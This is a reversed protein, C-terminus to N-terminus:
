LHNMMNLQKGIPLNNGEEGREKMKEDVNEKGGKPECSLILWHHAEFLDLLLILHPLLPYYNYFQNNGM